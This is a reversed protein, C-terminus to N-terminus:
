GLFHKLWFLSAATERLESVLSRVSCGGGGWGWTLGTPPSHGVPGAGPPHGPKRTQKFRTEPDVWTGHNQSFSQSMHLAPLFISTTGSELCPASGPRARRERRPRHDRASGPGDVDAGVLPTRTPEPHSNVTTM